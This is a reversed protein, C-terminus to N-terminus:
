FFLFRFYNQNASEAFTLWDFFHAASKENFTQILSEKRKAMGAPIYNEFRFSFLAQDWTVLAALSHLLANTALVRPKGAYKENIHKAVM